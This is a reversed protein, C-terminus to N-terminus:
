GRVEKKYISQLSVSPLAIDEMRRKQIVKMKEIYEIKLMIVDYDQMNEIKKRLYSPCVLSPFFLAFPYAFGFNWLEKRYM